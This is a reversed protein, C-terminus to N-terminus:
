DCDDSVRVTIRSVFKTMNGIRKQLVEATACYSQLRSSCSALYYSTKAFEGHNGLKDNMDKISSLTLLLSQIMNPIPILKANLNRINQLTRFNLGRDEKLTDELDATTL